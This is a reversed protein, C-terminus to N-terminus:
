FLPLTVSTNAVQKEGDLGNFILLEKNRSTIKLPTSSTSLALEITMFPSYHLLLIGPTVSAQGAPHPTNIAQLNMGKDTLAAVRSCLM